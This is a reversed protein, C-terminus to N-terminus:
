NHKKNGAGKGRNEENGKGVSYGGHSRWEEPETRTRTIQKTNTKQNKPETTPQSNTIM